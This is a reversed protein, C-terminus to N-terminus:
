LMTRNIDKSFDTSLHPASLLAEYSLRFHCYSEHFYYNFGTTSGNSSLVLDSIIHVSPVNQIDQFCLSGHGAEQPHSFLHPDILIRPGSPRSPLVEQLCQSGLCFCHLAAQLCTYSCSCLAAEKPLLQRLATLVPSFGATAM